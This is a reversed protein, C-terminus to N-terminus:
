PRFDNFPLWLLGFTCLMNGYPGKPYYYDSLVWSAFWVSLNQLLPYFETHLLCAMETPLRFGSGWFGLGRYM